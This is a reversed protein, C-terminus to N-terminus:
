LKEIEVVIYPKIKKDKLVEFDIIRPLAYYDNDFVIGEMSDLLLKLANSTDRVRNDPFYLKLNIVVKEKKTTDWGNERCAEKFINSWKEKLEEAPKTLKKGGFRTNMYIHNVSPFFGQDGDEEKHTIRKKMKKKRKKNKPDVITRYSMYSGYMMMPLIIEM